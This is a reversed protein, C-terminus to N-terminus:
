LDTRKVGTDNKVKQEAEPKETAAAVAEETDKPQAAKVILLGKDWVWKGMAKVHDVTMLARVDEATKPLQDATDPLIVAVVAASLCLTGFSVDLQWSKDGDGCHTTLWSVVMSGALMVFHFLGLSTARIDAVLKLM